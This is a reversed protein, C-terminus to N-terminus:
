PEPLSPSRSGTRHDPWPAWSWWGGSRGQDASASPCAAPNEPPCRRRGSRRACGPSRLPDAPILKRLAGQEQFLVIFAAKQAALCSLRSKSYPPLACFHQKATVYPCKQITVHCHEHNHRNYKDANYYRQLSARCFPCGSPAYWLDVIGAAHFLLTGSYNNSKELLMSSNSLFSCFWEVSQMVSYIVM